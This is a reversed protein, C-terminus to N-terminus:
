GRRLWLRGFLLLLGGVVLFLGHWRVARRSGPATVFLIVHWGRHDEGYRDFTARRQLQHWATMRDTFVLEGVGLERLGHPLHGGLLADGMDLSIDALRRARCFCIM